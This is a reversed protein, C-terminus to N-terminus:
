KRIIVMILLFVFFLFMIVSFLNSKERKICYFSTKYNNDLKNKKYKAYEIRAFLRYRLGYKKKGRNKQFKIIDERSAFISNIYYLFLTIKYSIYKSRIIRYILTNTKDFNLELVFSNIILVIIIYKFIYLLNFGSILILILLGILIILLYNRLLKFYRKIRYSNLIMLYISLLSTFLIIYINKTIIFMAVVLITILFKSLITMNDYLKNHM